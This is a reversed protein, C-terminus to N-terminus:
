NTSQQNIYAMLDNLQNESLREKTYNPMYPKYGPMAYTGERTIEYISLFSTTSSWYKLHNFTLKGTDLKYNTVGTQKHCTLCSLEFIKEGIKANGYLGLSRNEKKTSKLFTAPSYNLYKSKILKIAEEKGKQSHLANAIKQKEKNSLKIDNVSFGISIFFETMADMEWNDLARGQSCQVACLHIANKLTDYAPTVLTGYKKIYDDNYWHERNVAGAMTTGPLFNLNNNIAFDLRTEPNSETLDPDEIQINHCDTCVFHKSQKKTKKGNKDFTVGKTFLDFGQKVKQEDLENFSKYHIPKKDGLKVLVDLVKEAGNITHKPILYFSYVGGLLIFFSFLILSKKM